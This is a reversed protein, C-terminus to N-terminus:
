KLILFPFHAYPKWWWERGAIWGKYDSRTKITKIFNWTPDLIRGDELVILTHGNTEFPPKLESTYGARMTHPIEFRQLILSALISNHFCLTESPHAFYYEFPLSPRMDPTPWVDGSIAKDEFDEFIKQAKPSLDMEKRDIVKSRYGRFLNKKSVHFYDETHDRLERIVAETDSIGRAHMDDILVDIQLSLASGPSQDIIVMEASPDGDTMVFRDPWVDNPSRTNLDALQSSVDPHLAPVVVSVLAPEKEKPDIVFREVHAVGVNMNRPNKYFFGQLAKRGDQSAVHAFSQFSLTAAIFVAGFSRPFLSGLKKMQSADLLHLSM